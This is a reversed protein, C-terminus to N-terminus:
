LMTLNPVCFIIYAIKLLTCNWLLKSSFCVIKGWKVDYFIFICNWTGSKFCGGCSVGTHCELIVSRLQTDWAENTFCSAAILRRTLTISFKCLLCKLILNAFLTPNFIIKKHNLSFTFFIDYWWASLFLCLWIYATWVPWHHNICYM